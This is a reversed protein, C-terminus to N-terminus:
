LRDVWSELRTIHEERLGTAPDTQVLLTPPDPGTASAIAGRVCEFISSLRAPLPDAQISILHPIGDVAAGLLGSPAAHPFGFLSVVGDVDVLLLPRDTCSRV